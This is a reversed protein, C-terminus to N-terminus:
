LCELLQVRLKLCCQYSHFLTHKHEHWFTNCFVFDSNRCGFLRDINCNGGVRCVLFRCPHLRRHRIRREVYRERQSCASFHGYVTRPANLNRSDRHQRGRRRRQRRKWWRMGRSKSRKGRRRWGVSWRLRRRWWRRRSFAGVKRSNVICFNVRSLGNTNSSCHGSDPANPRVFGAAALAFCGVAAYSECLERIRAVEFSTLDVYHDIREM